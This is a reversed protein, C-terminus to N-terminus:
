YQRNPHTKNPWCPQTKIDKNSDSVASDLADLWPAEMDVVAQTLARM